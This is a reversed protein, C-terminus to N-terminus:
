ANSNFSMDKKGDELLKMLDGAPNAEMM